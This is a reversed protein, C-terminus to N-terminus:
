VEWNTSPLTKLFTFVFSSGIPAKITQETTVQTPLESGIQLFYKLNKPEGLTHLTIAVGTSDRRYIQEYFWTSYDKLTVSSVSYFFVNNLFAVVIIWLLMFQERQCWIRSSRPAMSTRARTVRHRQAAAHSTALPPPHRRGRLPSGFLRLPAGAPLRGRRDRVGHLRRSFM